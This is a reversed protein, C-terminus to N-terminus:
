QVDRHLRPRITIPACLLAACALLGLCSLALGVQFSTPHYEFRVDHEGPEITVSLFVERFAQVTAEHEDVWCRWGPLFCESLVLKQGGASGVYVRASIRGPGFHTVDFDVDQPADAYSPYLAFLRPNALEYVNVRGHQFVLSVGPIPTDPQTTAVLFRVNALQLPDINRRVADWPTWSNSTLRQASTAWLPRFFSLHSALEIADYNRLDAIKYRGLVNPPFEEDLPLVRFPIRADAQGISQGLKHTVPCEPFYHRLQIAPNYGRGFWFLELGVAVLLCPLLRAAQHAREVLWVLGILLGAYLAVAGYYRPFFRQTQAAMVDARHALADPDLGRLEAQHAFHTAAKKQIMPGAALVIVAALAASLAVVALIGSVIWKWRRGSDTTWPCWAEAGAGGLLSHALAVVLLLRENKTISLIPLWRLLHDILPLHYATALALVDAWLWFRVWSHRRSMCALPVLLALTGLGTYGGCIENFNGVGLAKEVHPHGRLYSGYIYPAALAPMALLDPMETEWLGRVAESRESWAQSYRLYEALPVLQVAALLFGALTAVAFWVLPVLSSHRTDRTSFSSVHSVIERRAWWSRWACYSAAVIMIHTATEPHGGLLMVGIALALCVARMPMPRQVLREVLWLILPFWAAVGGMPYQLWVVIFGSFPFVLGAFWRGLRGLGLASALLFAGMGAIFQKAMAMVVWAYPSGTLFHIFNIPNFVSAQANALLPAGCGAYPNWLPVRGARWESGALQLWPEMQCAIDTLLRNAPEHDGAHTAFSQTTLLWDAASLVWGPRLADWFYAVQLLVLTAIFLAFESRAPTTNPSSSTQNADM